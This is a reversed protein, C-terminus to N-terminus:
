IGADVHPLLSTRSRRWLRLFLIAGTLLFAIASVLLSPGSAGTIVGGILGCLIAVVVTLAVATAAEYLLRIIAFV